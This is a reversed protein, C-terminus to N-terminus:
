NADADRVLRALFLLEVAERCRREEDLRRQAREVMRRFEVSAIGAQFRAAPDGTM